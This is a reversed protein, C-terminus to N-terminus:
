MANSGSWKRMSRRKRSTSLTQRCPITRCNIGAAEARKRVADTLEENDELTFGYPVIEMHEGGNDTIWDIVDLITMEGSRIAPLLSYTSVGVRM